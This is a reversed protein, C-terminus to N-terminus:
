GSFPHRPPLRRIYGRKRDLLGLKVLVSLCGKIQGSLDHGTRDAITQASRRGHDSTADFLERENPSLMSLKRRYEKAPDVFVMERWFEEFTMERLRFYSYVEDLDVVEPENTEIILDVHGEWREVSLDAIISSEGASGEAIVIRMGEEPIRDCVYKEKKRQDALFRKMDFEIM